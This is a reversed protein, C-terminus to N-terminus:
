NKSANEIEKVMQIRKGIWRIVNVSFSNGCAKYRPGDPCKEKPKGNWEILTHNDPFGMLRECELPTLRRVINNAAVGHCNGKSLTNAPDGPNGIGCGQRNIADHKDPDRVANRLDIPIAYQILPLNNGGTECRSTLSPSINDMETIRSDNGHNEYCVVPPTKYDTARLTHCMNNEINFDNPRNNIIIPAEHNCNLTPAKDECVEANGQGTAM